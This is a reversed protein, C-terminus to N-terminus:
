RVDCVPLIHLNREHAERKRDATRCMLALIASRDPGLLNHIERRLAPRDACTLFVSIENDTGAARATVPKKAELRILDEFKLLPVRDFDTTLFEELATMRGSSLCSLFRAPASAPGAASPAICNILLSADMQKKVLSRILSAAMAIGLERLTDSFPIGPDLSVDLFIRVRLAATSAYTNVMLGGCKATAKWNVTKMPDRITYPRISSFVFPDEYVKRASEREGLIVEVARLLVSCDVRAPYVYLGSDEQSLRDMMYTMGFLRSPAQCTLQSVSYFGRELATMHYRRVIREMGAVAFLDRKYIFDSELTNEADTFHLGRPVRFGIEIVPLALKKRNEIIETLELTEKAYVHPQSFRVLVSLARSWRKQYYFGYLLLVAAVGLLFVAIM